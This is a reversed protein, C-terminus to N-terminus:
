FLRTFRYLWRTHLDRIMILGLIKVGSTLSIAECRFIFRWGDGPFM